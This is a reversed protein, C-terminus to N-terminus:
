PPTAAMQTKAAGQGIHCLFRGRQYLPTEPCALLAAELADVPPTIDSGVEILPRPDTSAQAPPQGTGQIKRLRDEITDEAQNLAQRVEQVDQGSLGAWDTILDQKEKKSGLNIFQGDQRVGNYLAIEAQNGRSGRGAQSVCIEFGAGFPVTIPPYLVFFTKLAM